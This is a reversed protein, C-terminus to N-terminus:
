FYYDLAMHSDVVHEQREIFPTPEWMAGESPLLYQKRKSFFRQSAEFYWVKTIFFKQKYVFHSKGSGPISGILCIKKCM